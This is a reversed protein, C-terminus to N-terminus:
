SRRAPLASRAPSPPLPILILVDAQARFEELPGGGLIEWGDEPDRVILTGHGEVAVAQQGCIFGRVGEEGPLGSVLYTAAFSRGCRDAVFFLVAM